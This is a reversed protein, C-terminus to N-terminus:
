KAQGQMRRNTLYDSEYYSLDDRLEEYVRSISLIVDRAARVPKMRFRIADQGTYAYRGDESYCENKPYFFSNVGNHYVEYLAREALDSDLNPRRLVAGLKEYAVESFVLLHRLDSLLGSYFVEEDPNDAHQILQELAHHNLFQEIPDIAAKLKERSSEALAKLNASSM